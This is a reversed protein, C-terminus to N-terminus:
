ECLSKRVITELGETEVLYGPSRRDSETARAASASPVLGAAEFQRRTSGATLGMGYLTELMRITAPELVDLQGSPAYKADTTLGMTFPPRVGAASIIHALGLVHGLEHASAALQAETSLLIRGRQVFSGRLWSWACGVCNDCQCQDKVEQTSVVSIMVEGPGPSPLPDPRRGEISAHVAGKTAPDVQQVTKETASAVTAPVSEGLIV